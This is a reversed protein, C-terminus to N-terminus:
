SSEMYSLASTIMNQISSTVSVIKDVVSNNFTDDIYNILTKTTPKDTKNNHVIQM